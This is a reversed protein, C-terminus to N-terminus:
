ATVDKFLLRFTERGKPTILTQTGAYNGRTFEKIEFLDPTYQAYPKPNDRSDRYIFGNAELWSMFDNQKIKLQKATDRFNTLSNREVLANFYDAKPKMLQVSRQLDKVMMLKTDDSLTPFYRDIFEEERGSAVYGGTKRITPLVEEAVWDTFREAEQKRSTFVLKYLGTESVVNAQQNGGPTQITTLGKQTDTLREVSRTVNGLELIDCVDKAVFWLQGDIVTTRVQQGEYEFVRQLQNM